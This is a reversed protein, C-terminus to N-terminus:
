AQLRAVARLLADALRDYDIAEGGNTAAGAAQKILWDAPNPIETPGGAWPQVLMIRERDESEGPGREAGFRTCIASLIRETNALLGAQDPTMDDDGTPAIPAGPLAWPRSDDALATHVSSVHFHTWHGDSGTYKRWTFAAVGNVVHGSFIRGAFIVYGIRPDRSQRLAETILGGDMGLSAAHPFDRACVVATAGLAAYYHPYHDSTSSHAGDAISGWSTAPTAPPAAKQYRERLQANLTQLSNVVRWAQGRQWTAM